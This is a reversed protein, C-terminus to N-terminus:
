TPNYYNEDAFMTVKASSNVSPLTLGIINSIDPKYDVHHILVDVTAGGSHTYVAKYKGAGDSVTANETHHLETSTGTTVITVETNLELGTITFDFNAVLVTTSGSVDHVSINAVGSGGDINLTVTGGSNNYIVENGTSGDTAAYGSVVLGTLTYSNGACAAALSIAYGTGDSNFTCNDINDPNDVVLAISATSEDFICDDFDAGAQTVQGCRTFTCTDLTTNSDFVFTSMDTFSCTTLAVTADNTTIWRGKSNTNTPDLCIFQFGTMEINSSANIVEITNFNATVNPTDQIFIIRNSDRFDVANTSTGLSMRGKWLYGGAVVQILGWMHYGNTADNYDNETAFGDITCYDASEGYEFIATCRGGRIADVQFPEGKSIGSLTKVAMGFYSWTGAPTGVTYDAAPADSGTTHHDPYVAFNQWGGYPYSGYDSGGCKWGYFDGYGDGVLIRIGGNAYTDLTSPSSFNMWILIAGDTPVSFNSGYNSSLLSGTGTKTCDATVAYQGQIFPYDGDQYAPPGQDDWAGDSSEDWGSSGDALDIDTLDETYSPVTM